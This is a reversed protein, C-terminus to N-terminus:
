FRTGLAVWRGDRALQEQLDLMEQRGEDYYAQGDNNIGIVSSKRLTNGEVQKVLAKSYRLLWDLIYETKIDEDTFIRRTGMVALRESGYPLNDVYLHGGENPDDNKVFSWQFDEGIYAQYNKFSETLVIIDSTVNDLITIGLLSWLPHGQFPDFAALSAPYVKAVFKMHKSVQVRPEITNVMEITKYGSHNNWYRFASDVAQEITADPTVICLPKFETRVWTVMEAKVM